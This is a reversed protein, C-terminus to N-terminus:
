FTIIAKSGNNKESSFVLLGDQITMLEKCHILGLGNSKENETGRTVIVKSVDFLNNLQEQSMGVGNDEIELQPPSNLTNLNLHLNIKGKQPTFKIANVFLNGIVTLMMNYDVVVTANNAIQVCVQIQKKDALIRYPKIASFVMKKCNCSEKKVVFSEQEQQFKCWDLLTKTLTFISTVHKDIINIMKKRELEDFNDYEKNLLKTYGLIANFPNILDHSIIDFLKQKNRNTRELKVKQNNIIINKNLLLKTIKQRTKFNYFVVFLTICNIISVIILSGYESKQKEVVVNESHNLKKQTDAEYKNDFEIRTQDKAVAILSDSKPMFKNAYGLTHKFNSVHYYLSKTFFIGVENKSKVIRNRVTSQYITSFRFVKELGKIEKSIPTSFFFLIIGLISTLLIKM